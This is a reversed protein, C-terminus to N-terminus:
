ELNFAKKLDEVQQDNIKVIGGLYKTAVIAKASYETVELRDFANLLSSGVAIVCDNDVITIPSNMGVVEATENPNMFYSAHPLKKVDRLLIYSEPITRSDLNEDTVAFAM